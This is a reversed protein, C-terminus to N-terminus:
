GGAVCRRVPPVTPVSKGESQGASPQDGPASRPQLPPLLAPRRSFGSSAFREDGTGGAQGDDGRREHVRGQPARLWALVYVGPYAGIGPDIWQPTEPRLMGNAQFMPPALRRIILGLLRESRRMKCGSTMRLNTGFIRCCASPRATLRMKVLRLPRLEPM